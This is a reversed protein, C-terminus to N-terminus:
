PFIPAKQTLTTEETVLDKLGCLYWKMPRFDGKINETCAREPNQALILGRKRSRWGGKRGGERGEGRKGKESKSEGGRGRGVVKHRLEALSKACPNGEDM